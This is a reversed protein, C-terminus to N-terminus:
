DGGEGVVISRWQFAQGLRTVYEIKLEAKSGLLFIIATKEGNDGDVIFHSSEVSGENSLQENVLRAGPFLIADGRASPYGIGDWQDVPDIRALYNITLPQDSCLNELSLRVMPREVGTRNEVFVLPKLYVESFDEGPGADGRLVLLAEGPAVEKLLLNPIWAPSASSWFCLGVLLVGIVEIVRKKRKM